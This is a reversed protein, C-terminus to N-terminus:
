SARNEHIHRRGEVRYAHFNDQVFTLAIDDVAVIEM